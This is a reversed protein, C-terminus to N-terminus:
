GNTACTDGSYVKSTDNLYLIRQMVGSRIQLANELASRAQLRFFATQFLSFYFSLMQSPHERKIEFPPPTGDRSPPFSYTKKIRHM